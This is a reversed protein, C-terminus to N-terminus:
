RPSQSVGDDARRGALQLLPPVPAAQVVQGLGQDGVGRSDLRAIKVAPRQRELKGGAYLNASAPLLGADVAAVVCRHVLGHACPAQLLADQVRVPTRRTVPGVVALHPAQVLELRERLARSGLLERPEAAQQQLQGPVTGHLAGRPLLASRSGAAAVGGCWLRRRGSHVGLARQRGLEPSLDQAVQVRRRNRQARPKVAHHAQAPLADQRGGRAPLGHPGLDSRLHQDRAAAHERHRCPEPRCRVPKAM